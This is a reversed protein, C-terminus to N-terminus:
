ASGRPTSTSSSTPGCIDAGFHAEATSASNAIPALAVAVAFIAFGAVTWLGPFPLACPSSIFLLEALALVVVAWWRRRQTATLVAGLTLPLLPLFQYTYVDGPVLAGLAFALSMSYPQAWGSRRSAWVTSALLAGLTAYTLVQALWGLRWPVAHMESWVGDANIVSYGSGGVLRAFLLPTANQFCDHTAGSAGSSVPLLVRTLYFLPDGFPIFTVLLLSAAVAVLTLTFRWWRGPAVSLVTAAPYFKISTGIGALAGAWGPRSRVLAMAGAGLALLLGGRQGLRVDEFLPTFCLVALVYVPPAWAARPAITRYLLVLGAVMMLADVAVWAWVGAPSPLLGFPVAIL